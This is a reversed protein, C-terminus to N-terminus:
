RSMLASRLDANWAPQGAIGSRAGRGAGPPRRLPRELPVPFRDKRRRPCARGRSGAGRFSRAARRGPDGRFRPRLGAPRSGAVRNGAVPARPERRGAVGAAGPEREPVGGRFPGPLRRQPRHLFPTRLGGGAARRALAPGGAELVAEVATPHHAFDRVVLVRGDPRAGLQQLRREVGSFDHVADRIAEWEVGLWEAAAAAALVNRAAARGWFRGHLNRRAEGRFAAQLRSGSPGSSQIAAVWDAAPGEGGAVSFTWVTTHAAEALEAAAPSDAGLLLLGRRPPLRALFSFQRRVAAFDSYIDAHDFEVNGIIAVEPLYHLFKPGKDWYASDYEDGEVVFPEGTAGLAFNGGLDNAVGGALFGADLGSTRLIWALLSTTTTKGHTGAVVVPVRRRLVLERLTEPFSVLPLRLDLAAELEPNGRSIANGVIVARCDGPLNGPGFPTRVEIGERELVTSMPPYAGQDSGSVRYGLRTLLGALSAMATGAVGLVHLRDGARLGHIM